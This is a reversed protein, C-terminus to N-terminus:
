HVFRNARRQWLTLVLAILYLWAMFLEDWEIFYAHVLMALSILYALFPMSDTFLIAGGALLVFVGDDRTYGLVM